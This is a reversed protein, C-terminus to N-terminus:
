GRARRGRTGCSATLFGLRNRYGGLWARRHSRALELAEAADAGAERGPGVRRARRDVVVRLRGVGRRQERAGLRARLGGRGRGGGPRAPRDARGRGGRPRRAGGTPRARGSGEGLLVRGRASLHRRAAALTGAPGGLVHGVGVCLVADFPPAGEGADGTWTTADARVVTLRDALGRSAASARAADLAPGSTDVGVGTAGPTAILARQLWEASGCGLDLVRSRAQLDLAEVLREVSRDSVPAAVPHWRHAVSSALARDLARHM